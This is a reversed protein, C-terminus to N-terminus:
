WTRELGHRDVNLEDGAGVEESSPVAPAEDVRAQVKQSKQRRTFASNGASTPSQGIGLALATM